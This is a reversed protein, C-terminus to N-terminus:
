RYIASPEMSQYDLEGEMDIADFEERAEEEVAIANEDIPDSPDVHEEYLGSTYTGTELGHGSLEMDQIYESSQLKYMFRKVIGINDIHEKNHSFFQKMFIDLILHSLTSQIFRNTNMKILEHLETILYYILTKGTIDYPEILNTQFYVSDLDINLEERPQKLYMSSMMIHATKFTDGIKFNPLNKKYKNFLETVDKTESELSTEPTYKLLMIIRQFFLITSKINKIKSRTIEAYITRILQRKSVKELEEDSYDGLYKKKIDDNRNRLFTYGLYNIMHTMSYNINIIHSGSKNLIYEGDKEKYGLLQRTMLDYFVEISGHQDDRYFVVDTKFVPHNNRFKIKDNDKYNRIVIPTSLMDGNYKHDIIYTDHFLSIDKHTSIQKGLMNKLTEIFEFKFTKKGTLYSGSLKKIVDVKKDTLEKHADEKRKFDSHSHADQKRKLLKMKEFTSILEDVDKIDCTQKNCIKCIRKGKEIVFQHLNGTKCIKHSIKQLINIMYKKGLSKDTKRDTDKMNMKCKGCVLEKGVVKWKHFKGDNCITLSSIKVDTAYNQKDLPLMIWGSKNKQYTKVYLGTYPIFVNSLPMLGIEKSVKDRNWKKIKSVLQHKISNLLTSDRFTTSLELYFKATLMEYIHNTKDEKQELISNVLDVFSYMIIKHIKVNYKKKDTDEPVKFSWVKYRTLLCSFYYILYCLVKYNTIKVKDKTKNRIIKIDSFFDFGFKNFWHYNCIKDGGMYSIQGKNIALIINFILHLIVTNYKITKFMDKDQSSHKFISNELTFVFMHSMDKPIGYQEHIIERRSKYVPEMKKNHVIIMDLTAKIIHRRRLRITTLNGTLAPINAINAIREIMKEMNIITDYYSSYEPLDILPIDLPLQFPIFEGTLNNTTGDIAYNKLELLFGCSKCVFEQDQNVLAYRNIFEFLKKNFKSVDLKKLTNITYWDLNHKCIVLENKLDKKTKPIKDDRFLVIKEIKKEEKGNYKPLKIVDGQLGPFMDQREDYKHKYEVYKEKFILNLFGTEFEPTTPIKMFKKEFKQKIRYADYLSLKDRKSIIKILQMYLLDITRDYLKSIMLKFHENPNVGSVQEYEDFKISDKNQDFLWYYPVLKHHRKGKKQKKKIIYDYYRNMVSTISLFGNTNITHLDTLKNISMCPNLQTGLPLIFGVINVKTGPASVRLQIPHKKSINERNFNIRRVSDVTKDKMSIDIGSNTLDKFNIYPYKRYQLLDAIYEIGDTLKKGSKQVKELIRLEENSNIVVALRNNMPAYFMNHAKSQASKSKSKLNMATDIKHVIFKLKTNERKTKGEILAKEYRESDKSFLLFDDTIPIVIGNTILSVIKDNPTKDKKIKESEQTLKYIDDALGQKQQKPNLAQEITHFDLEDKIPVVIDIFTYIGKAKETEEVLNYISLREEEYIKQFIITKIINHAREIDHKKVFYEQFYEEGLDNLFEFAPKLEEKHLLAKIKSSPTEIIIICAKILKHFKIIKANTAGDFFGKVKFMKDNQTKGFNVINDVFSSDSGKYFYSLIMFTYYLIYRRTILEVQSLFIADDSVSKVPDINVTEIYKKWFNNLPTQYKIFNADKAYTKFDKNKKVFRVFFDDVVKDLYNDIQSIYM